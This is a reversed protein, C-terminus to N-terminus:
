LIKRVPKIPNRYQFSDFRVKDAPGKIINIKYGYDEPSDGRINDKYFDSFYSIIFVGEFGCLRYDDYKGPMASLSIVEIM